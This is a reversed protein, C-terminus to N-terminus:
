LWDAIYPLYKCAPPPSSCEKTGERLNDVIPCADVDRHSRMLHAPEVTGDMVELQKPELLLPSPREKSFTQRASSGASTPPTPSWAHHNLTHHTAKIKKMDQGQLTPWKTEWARMTLYWDPQLLDQDVPTHHCAETMWDEEAISDRYCAPQLIPGESVLADM